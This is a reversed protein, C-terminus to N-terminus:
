FLIQCGLRVTKEMDGNVVPEPLSGSLLLSCQETMSETM